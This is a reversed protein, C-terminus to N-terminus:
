GFLAAPGNGMGPVSPPFAGQLTSRNITLVTFGNPQLNGYLDTVGTIVLLYTHSLPLLQNPYLFVQNTAADYIVNSIPIRVGPPGGFTDDYLAFNNLNTATSSNLPKSFQVTLVTPINHFGYRALAVVSPGTVDVLTATSAITQTSTNFETTAQVFGINTVVTNQSFPGTTHGTVTFTYTEGVDISPYVVAIINGNIIVTGGPASVDAATATVGNPLADGVVV